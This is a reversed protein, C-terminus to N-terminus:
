AADAKQDEVHAAWADRAHDSAYIAAEIATRLERELVTEAHKFLWKVEPKELCVSRVYFGSRDPELYAVGTFWGVKARGLLISLDEFDYEM